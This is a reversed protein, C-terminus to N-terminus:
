SADLNRRRDFPDVRRDADDPIVIPGAIDAESADEGAFFGLFAARAVGYLMYTIGLPFFFVDHRLLGFILIFLMTLLGLIGRATRVGSKPLTAYRVNSVMLITLIIMLFTLMLQWPLNALDNQYLDTQSFPYYTALTMGAAPSPLGIFATQYYNVAHKRHFAVRGIQGFYYPERLFIVSSQINIFRVAYAHEAAM